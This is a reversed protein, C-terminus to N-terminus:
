KFYLNLIDKMNQIEEETIKTSASRGEVESTYKIEGDGNNVMNEIAKIEDPKLPFAIYEEVSDVLNSKDRWLASNLKRVMFDIHTSGNSILDFGNMYIWESGRYKLALYLTKENTEKNIKLVLFHQDEYVTYKQKKKIYTINDEEKIYLTKDEKSKHYGRDITRVYANKSCSVFTLIILLFILKKFKKM